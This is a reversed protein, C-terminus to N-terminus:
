EKGANQARENEQRIGSSKCVKINGCRGGHRVGEITLTRGSIHRLYIYNYNIIM